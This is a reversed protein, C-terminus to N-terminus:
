LSLTCPLKGGFNFHQLVQLLLNNPAHLAQEFLREEAKWKGRPSIHSITRRGNQPWANLFCTSRPTM